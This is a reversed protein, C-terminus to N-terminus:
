VMLRRVILAGAAALLVIFVTRSAPSGDPIQHQGGGGGIPTPTATPTPPVSTPTATPTETPGGPTATATPTSPIATHTPTATPTGTPTWTSTWTPTNTPTNTPTPTYTFTATPTPPVPTTTNTPTPTNTFTPTPPVPTLTPTSTYTPTPPPPTMTATFTPTPPVPTNTFTPTPTYTFTPTPPIPTNTFTPTPTYTFTPTPPVPTNTPTPTATPPPPVPLGTSVDSVSCKSGTGPIAGGIDSCVTVANSDWSAAVSVDVIGDGTRDICQVRLAVLTKFVQTNAGLDGCDDEDGDWWPPGNLDFIGDGNHDGYPPFPDLPPPLYDHFCDDGSLASGGDLAIFLGVDYRNPSGEASVLAEFIIEAEGYTGETCSELVTVVTLAEIRVDNAVCNAGAVFDQICYNGTQQAGAALPYTALAFLLLGTAVRCALRGERAIAPVLWQCTLFSRM